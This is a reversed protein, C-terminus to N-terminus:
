GKLGKGLKKAIGELFLGGSGLSLSIIASRHVSPLKLKSEIRLYSPEYSLHQSRNTAIVSSMKLGMGLNRENIESVYNKPHQTLRSTRFKSSFYRPPTSNLVSTAKSRLETDFLIKSKIARQKAKKKQKKKPKRPRAGIIPPLLMKRIKKQTEIIEEIFCDM